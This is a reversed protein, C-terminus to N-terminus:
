GYVENIIGRIYTLNKRMYRPRLVWSPRGNRPKGLRLM